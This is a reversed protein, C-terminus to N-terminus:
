QKVAVESGVILLDFLADIDRHSLRICGPSGTQGILSPDDTGHIGQRNLSGTENSLALWRSGSGDQAMTKESIRYRGPPLQMDNGLGVRFNVLYYGNAHVTLEMDSLDVVASFPGQLVKLTQGTRLQTPDIRNLRQLYQPTVQYQDAVTELREGFRVTHPALYHPEPQFYVRAALLNMRNQFKARQETQTWYWRSYLRLAEVDQGSAQLREAESLDIGEQSAPGPKLATQHQPINGVSAPHASVTSASETEHPIQRVYATRVIERDPPPLAQSAQVVNKQPAMEEQESVAMIQPETQVLAVDTPSAPTVSEISRQVLSRPPPPMPEEEMATQTPETQLFLDLKWATVIGFSFLVIFWFQFTQVPHRRPRQEFM